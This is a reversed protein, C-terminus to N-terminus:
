VRWPRNSACMECHSVYRFPHAKLVDDVPEYDFLVARSLLEPEEDPTVIRAVNLDM